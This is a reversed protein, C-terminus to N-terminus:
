GVDGAPVMPEGSQEWCTPPLVGDGGRDWTAAGWGRGPLLPWAPQHAGSYTIPALPRGQLRPKAALVARRIVPEHPLLPMHNGQRNESFGAEDSSQLAQNRRHSRRGALEESASHQPPDSAAVWRRSPEPPSNNVGLSRLSTMSPFPPIPLNFPSSVDVPDWRHSRHHNIAWSWNRPIRGRPSWLSKM